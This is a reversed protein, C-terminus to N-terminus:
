RHRGVPVKLEERRALNRTREDFSWFTDCGLVLASAVHLLDYTRFGLRATDSMMDANASFDFRAMAPRMNDARWFKWSIGCSPTWKPPTM